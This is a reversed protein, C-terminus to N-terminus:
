HTMLKGVSDDTMYISTTDYRWTADSLSNQVYLQGDDDGSVFIHERRSSDNKGLKQFLCNIMSFVTFWRRYEGIM